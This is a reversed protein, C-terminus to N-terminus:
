SRLLLNKVTDKTITVEPVEILKPPEPNKQELTSDFLANSVRTNPLEDVEDGYEQLVSETMEVKPRGQTSIRPEELIETQTEITM